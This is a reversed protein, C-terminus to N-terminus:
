DCRWLSSMKPGHCSVWATLVIDNIKCEWSVWATLVIDKIKCDCRRGYDSELPDLWTSHTWM